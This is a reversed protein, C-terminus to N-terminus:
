RSQSAMARLLERAVVANWDAVAGDASRASEIMATLVTKVRDHNVDLAVAAACADLAVDAREAAAALARCIVDRAHAAGPLRALDQPSFDQLACLAARAVEVSEDSSARSLALAGSRMAGLTQAAACRARAAAQTDGLVTTVNEVIRSRSGAVRALHALSRVAADRPEARTDFLGDRMLEVIASAVPTDRPQMCALTRLAQARIDAESSHVCARAADAHEGADPGARELARLALLRQVRSGHLSTEALAALLAPRDDLVDAGATLLLEAARMRVIREADALCARLAPQLARLASRDVHAPIARLAASRVASDPNDLHEALVAMDGITFRARALARVCAARVPESADGLSEILARRARVVEAERLADAALARVEPRLGSRLADLLSDRAAEPLGSVVHQPRLRHSKVLKGVIPLARQYLAPDASALARTIAVLAQPLKCLASSSLRAYDDLAISEQDHGSMPIPSALWPAQM